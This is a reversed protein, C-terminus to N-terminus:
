AFDALDDAVDGAAIETEAKHREVAEAEAGIEPGVEAETMGPRPGPGEPAPATEPRAQGAEGESARDTVRGAM